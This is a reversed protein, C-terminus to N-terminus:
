TLVLSTNKDLMQKKFTPHWEALSESYVAALQLLRDNSYSVLLPLPTPAGSGLTHKLLGPLPVKHRTNGRELYISIM